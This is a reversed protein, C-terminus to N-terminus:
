RWFISPLGVDRVSSRTTLEQSTCVEKLVMVAQEGRRMKQLVIEKFNAKYKLCPLGRVSCLVDFRPVLAELLQNFKLLLVPVGKDALFRSRQARPDFLLSERVLSHLRALLGGHSGFLRETEGLNAETKVCRPEPTTTMSHIMALIIAFLAATNTEDVHRRLLWM